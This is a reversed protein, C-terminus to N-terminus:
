LGEDSKNANGAGRIGGLSVVQEWMVQTSRGSGGGLGRKNGRFAVQGGM